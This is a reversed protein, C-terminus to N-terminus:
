EIYRIYVADNSITVRKTILGNINSIVSKAVQSFVENKNIYFIKENQYYGTMEDEDLFLKNDGKTITYGQFDMKHNISYVEDQRCSWDTGVGYEVKIDGIEVNINPNTLGSPLLSVQGYKITTDNTWEEYYTSGNYVRFRYIKNDQDKVLTVNEFNIWTETDEDYKKLVMADTDTTDLWYNETSTPASSGSIVNIVKKLPIQLTYLDLNKSETIHYVYRGVTYDDADLLSVYENNFLDLIVNFEGATVMAAMKFQFTISEQTPSIEFLESYFGTTKTSNSGDYNITFKNGSLYNGKDEVISFGNQEGASSYFDKRLLTTPEWNSTTSNYFYIIGNEYNSSTETCYWYSINTDTPPTSGKALPQFNNSLWGDYNWLMTNRVLNDGKKTIDVELGDITNKIETIDNNTDRITQEMGDVRIVLRDFPGNTGVFAEIENENKKAIIYTQNILRDDGTMNSYDSKATDPMETFIKEELGDEIKPESNLMICPYTNETVNGADDELTIHTTYLDMAELYMIGTSKVNNTFYELGVLKDVINEAYDARDNGNMIQNDKIELPIRSEEALDRPNSKYISDADGSRTLIITNLPGFKEKFAVDVDKFYEETVEDQFAEGSTFTGSGANTYFVDNADDYMGIVNDANRYCPILDRKLTTGEYVKFSYIRVSSANDSAFNGRYNLGFLFFNSSSSNINITLSSTSGNIDVRGNSIDIIIKNKTAYNVTKGVYSPTFFTLDNTANRNHRLMFRNSSNTEYGFLCNYSNNINIFQYEIEIKTTNSSVAYNTNIYQTGSSQIYDVKTYTQSIEHTDTPFKIFANESNDLMINGAVVQSLQDLIDRYKYGLSPNDEDDTIYPDKTIVKDYNPFTNNADAFTINIDALLDTIYERVTTPFDPESLGLYEVMSNLMKDYCTYTYTKTDENYTKDFVYYYGYNLWEYASDVYLGFEYKLRDGVDLEVDSEFNLGKMVSKLIDTNLIPSVNYLHEGMIPNNIGDVTIKSDIVRGLEKIQTKFNYTVSRM